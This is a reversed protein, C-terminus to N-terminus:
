GEDVDEGGVLAAVERAQIKEYESQPCYGPQGNRDIVKRITVGDGPKLYWGMHMNNVQPVLHPTKSTWYMKGHPVRVSKNKVKGTKPDRIKESVRIFRASPQSNRRRAGMSRSM